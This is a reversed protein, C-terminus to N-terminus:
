EMTNGALANRLRFDLLDGYSAAHVGMLPVKELMEGTLGVAASSGAALTM